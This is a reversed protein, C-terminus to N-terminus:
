SAYAAAHVARVHELQRRRWEPPAAAPAPAAVATAVARRLAALDPGAVEDVPYTVVRDWQESAYGVAPAVVTTGVDHCAEVWGSHTGWRHLQVSVALGTLYARLEDDDLRERVAVTVYSRGALAARLALTRPDDEVETHVGVELRGGADRTGEAVALLAPVVDDGLNTRYSKLHVGVLGPEPEVPAPGTFIAPHDVVTAERGFRRRIEAAAGPTLTLVVDAAGVLVALQQLHRDADRLHPNRLDHVTVVLRTGRGRTVETWRALQDPAVHDFGFHVHVVDATVATAQWVEPDWLPDPAWPGDPTARGVHVVGEPVVADVYPHTTPFTVVDM